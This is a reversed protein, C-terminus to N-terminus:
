GERPRSSRRRRTALAKTIVEDSHKVGHVAEPPRRHKKGPAAVKQRSQERARQRNGNTSFEKMGLRKLLRSARKRIQSLESYFGPRIAWHEANAQATAAIRGLQEAIAVVRNELAQLSESGATRDSKRSSSKNGHGKAM